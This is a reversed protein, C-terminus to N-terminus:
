HTVSFVNGLKSNKKKRSEWWPDGCHFRWEGREGVDRTDEKVVDLYRMNPTGRETEM